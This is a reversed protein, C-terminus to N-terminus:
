DEQMDGKANDFPTGGSKGAKEFSSSSDPFAKKLGAKVKGHMAKKSNKMAKAAHGFQEQLKSHAAAHRKPDSTIAAHEKLTRADNEADFSDANDMPATSNDMAM